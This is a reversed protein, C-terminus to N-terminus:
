HFREVVIILEGEPWDTRGVGSLTLEISKIRTPKPLHVTVLGRLQSPQSDHNIASTHRRGRAEGSASQGRLYAVPEFLTISVSQGPM